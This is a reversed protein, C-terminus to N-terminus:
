LTEDAQCKSVMATSCHLLSGSVRRRGATHASEAASPKPDVVGAEAFASVGVATLMPRMRPVTAKPAMSTARNPPMATVECRSGLGRLAHTSTTRRAISDPLRLM